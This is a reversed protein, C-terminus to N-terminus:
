GRSATSTLDADGTRQGPHLPLDRRAQGHGRPAACPARRRHAQPKLKATRAAAFRTAGTALLESSSGARRPTPPRSSTVARPFRRPSWSRRARRSRSPAGTAASSCAATPTKGPRRGRGLQRCPRRRRPPVHGLHDCTGIARLDIGASVRGEADLPQTVPESPHGDVGFLVWGTPVSAPNAPTSWPRRSRSSGPRRRTARRRSPRRPRTWACPRPQTESVCTSFGFDFFGRDPHSLRTWAPSPRVGARAGRRRGPDCMWAGHLSADDRGSPRHPVPRRTRNTASSRRRM